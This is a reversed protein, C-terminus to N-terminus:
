AVAEKGSSATATAFGERDLTRQVLRLLGQDDDVVFIKAPTSSDSM